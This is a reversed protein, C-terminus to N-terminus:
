KSVDCLEGEWGATCNCRFGNIEDICQGGNNCPNGLCEDRDINHPFCYEFANILTTFLEIIIYIQIPAM